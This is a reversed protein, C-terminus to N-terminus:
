KEPSAGRDSSPTSMGNKVLEICERIGCASVGPALPYSGDILCVVYSHEPEIVGTAAHFGKTLTPVTSAKCEFALTRSGRELVLDLEAGGSSRYFSARWDPLSACLAEVCLAEWSAGFSPHGLLEDVSRIGLLAHCLGTDRIYLKPSKVLRKKLNGEWPPLLRVFLAEQLFDLRARIAPGSLDLSAGLKAANLIQAQLHACMSLFREMAISPIRSGLMPLDREVISRLFSERWRFSAEPTAALSSEPFGGRSVTELMTPPDGALHETPLFPTLESYGIRGALSEASRNILSRSASGTLLFRGPRRDRDIEVRLAPFLEPVLQIEDICVLKTANAEFYLQPDAIKARDRPNELDLWISGPRSEVIRAALRSKGCQRPGVLAVAPFIALDEELTTRITRDIYQHM